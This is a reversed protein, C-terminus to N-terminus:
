LKLEDHVLELEAKLSLKSYVLSLVIQFTVAVVYNLSYDGM